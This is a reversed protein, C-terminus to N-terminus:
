NSPAPQPMMKQKIQMGANMIEMLHQKPLIIRMGGQGDASYGGIALSSQSPLNLGGFMNPMPGSQGECGAQMMPGISQMMDGLGTMLKIINVSCVFDMNPTDQLLDFAAKVEGTAPASANQDILAKVDAESDTGMAVYYTDDTHAATYTLGGGYLQKMMTQMPDNPDDSPPFSLVVKDITANKYTSVGPKYEFSMPLGIAKYFDGAMAMSEKTLKQMAAMDKAGFIEHFKLPPQGKAYSFSFAFEDGMVALMKHSLEKMKVIQETMAADSDSQELIDFFIAYMKQMGAQDIKMLGNVANNNDLYGTYAFGDKVKPNAVLLDALESADKARLSIDLSLATPEPTLAITASDADGAFQKFLGTYISVYFKGFDGMTGSMAESMEAEAKEMEAMVMPSFQNYLAALNVYGWVPVTVAEKAQAASLKNALPASTGSLATKLAALKAKESQPVVLAYKGDAAKTMAFGGAPSNSSSLITIGDEGTTCNANTKVFEDYNTVPVLIGVTFDSLGVVMLNGNMEIGTLMPDGVIGALQMNVLMATGIPSVGVLYQDIKALSGSFDNVRVCFMCDDPLMSLLNDEAAQVNGAACMLIVLSLVLTKLHKTGFKM